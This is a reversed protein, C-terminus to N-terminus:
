HPATHDIATAVVRRLTAADAEAAWREAAAHAAAKLATIRDPTLAALAERLAEADFGDAVIGAGTARALAAMEPSPGVVFALRAQLFEFLKNPLAHVHNLNVPPLLHVGVDYRNGEVPLSHSPLPPHFAIRPDNKARARLRRLERDPGVLYLDLRYRDGLGRMADILVELGRKPHAMGWHVLRIPPDVPTPALAVHPAANTIVLPRIGLDREYLDAIGDSVTTMAAARAAHRALLYRTYPRGAARWRLSPAEQGPGYEHADYVIPVGPLAREVVPLMAADNVLVVDAAVGRLAEECAALRGDTETLRDLRPEAPAPATWRRRRLAAWATSMGAPARAALLRHSTPAAAPLTVHEVDNWASPTLAATTVRWGARLAAVHRSVRADRALDSLSVVLARPRGPPAGGPPALISPDDDVERLLGPVDVVELGPHDTIFHLLRDFWAVYQPDPGEWRREGNEGTVLRSLSYSHLIYTIVREGRAHLEDLARLDADTHVTTEWPEFRLQRANSDFVSVPLEILGRYRFPANGVVRDRAITHRDRYVHDYSSDLRLGAAALADILADSCRYGGGRYAVPPAGAVTTFDEIITEIAPEVTERRWDVVESHAPPQLGREEFWARDLRELHAHLQLDHGDARTLAAAQQVEARGFQYAGTVDLFVVAPMGHRRLARFILPLGSTPEPAPEPPPPTSASSLDRFTSVRGAFDRALRYGYPAETAAGSELWGPLDVPLHGNVAYSWFGNGVAPNTESDITFLVYTPPLAAM